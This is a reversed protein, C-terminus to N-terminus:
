RSLGETEMTKYKDRPRRREGRGVELEKMANQAFRYCFKNTKDDEINFAISKGSNGASLVLKKLVDLADKQSDKSKGKKMCNNGQMVIDDIKVQQESNSFLMYWNKSGVIFKDKDDESFEDRGTIEQTRLIDKKIEDSLESVKVPMFIKDQRYTLKKNLEEQIEKSIRDKSATDKGDYFIKQDKKADTYIGKHETKCRKKFVTKVGLGVVACSLLGPLSVTSAAAFVTGLVGGALPLTPLLVPTLAVAAGLIGGAILGDGFGKEAIKYIVSEFSVVHLKKYVSLGKEPAHLLEKRSNEISELDGLYIKSFERNGATFVGNKMLLRDYEEKSIEGNELQEKRVIEDAEIMDKVSSKIVAKIKDSVELSKLENRSINKEGKTEEFYEKISEFDLGKIKGKKYLKEIKQKLEKFKKVSVGLKSAKVEISDFCVYSRGDKGIKHTVFSGAIEEGKEDKVLLVRSNGEIASNIMSTEANSGLKQCCGINEKDGFRMVRIDTFDLVEYAYGNQSKRQVKPISTMTRSQMYEMIKSYKDMYAKSGKVGHTEMYTKFTDNGNERSTDLYKKVNEFTKKDVYKSILDWNEQLEALDIETIHQFNNRIFNYKEVDYSSDLYTFGEYAKLGENGVLGNSLLNILTNLRIDAGKLKEDPGKDQEFIGFNFAMKLLIEKDRDDANKLMKNKMLSKWRNKDFDPIRDKPYCRILLPSVFDHYQLFENVFEAYEILKSIEVDVEKEIIDQMSDIHKEGSIVISKLADFSSSSIGYSMCFENIFNENELNDKIQEVAKKFEESNM